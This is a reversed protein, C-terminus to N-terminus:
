LKRNIGLRLKCTQGNINCMQSHSINVNMNEIKENHM